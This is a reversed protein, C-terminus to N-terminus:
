RGTVQIWRAIDEQPAVVFMDAGEWACCRGLSSFVTAHKGWGWHVAGGGSKFWIIETWVEMSVIIFYSIDSWLEWSFCEPFCFLIYFPNNLPVLFCGPCGPSLSGLNQLSSFYKSFLGVNKATEGQPMQQNTLSTLQLFLFCQILAKLLEMALPLCFSYDLAILAAFDKLDLDWLLLFWLFLSGLIWVTM